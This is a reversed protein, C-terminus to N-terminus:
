GSDSSQSAPPPTFPANAVSFRIFNAVLGDNISDMDVVQMCREEVQQAYVVLTQGVVVDPSIESQSFHPFLDNARNQGLTQPWAIQQFELALWLRPRKLSARKRSSETTSVDLIPNFKNASLHSAHSEPSKCDSKM